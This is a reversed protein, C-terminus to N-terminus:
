TYSGFVLAVPKKGKFSSLAVEKKGNPSKLTFDPAQEGVKLLDPQRGSRGQGPRGQGPRGQGPRGQGPRRGPQAWTTQVLAAALVTTVTLVGVTKFSISM